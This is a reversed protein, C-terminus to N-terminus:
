DRLRGTENTRSVGIGGKRRMEKRRKEGGRRKEVM